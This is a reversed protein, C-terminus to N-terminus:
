CDDQVNKPPSQKAQDARRFRFRSIKSKFSPSVALSSCSSSRMKWIKIKNTVLVTAEPEGNSLSTSTSSSISPPAAHVTMEDDNGRSGNGNENEKKTKNYIPSSPTVPTMSASSPHSVTYKPSKIRLKVKEEEMEEKRRVIERGKEERASPQAVHLGM